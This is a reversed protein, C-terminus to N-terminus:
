QNNNIKYLFCSQSLLVVMFENGCYVGYIEDDSELSILYQKAIHSMLKGTTRNKLQTDAAVSKYVYIHKNTDAIAAYSFNPACSRFKTNTKSAQIYGFASFTHVHSLWSTEQSDSTNPQWLIGDVDQRLCFAPSKSSHHKVDFLFKTDNIFAKHTALHSDGDLRRFMLLKDENEPVQSQEDDMADCDELQQELKFLNQTEEWSIKKDEESDMPLDKEENKYEGYEHMDKLCCSWIGVVAKELILEIRNSAENLQWTSEDVKICASLQDSLIIKGCHIIEISDTTLMINLNSKNLTVNDLVCVSMNLETASQNWTYFKEVKKEKPLEAVSKQISKKVFPKVPNVSDFEFRIFNPGAIYISQGNTELAVYDPVSTLCNLRRVRRLSWLSSEANKEFSLWNILTDFSYSVESSKQQVNMFLLHLTNNILLADKLICAIGFKELNRTPFQFSITWKETSSSDQVHECIYITEYGDFIVATNVSIFKMTVNVRNSNSLSLDSLQLTTPIVARTSGEKYVIKVLQFKSDFYYINSDDFQNVVILNQLGILKLHQFLLMKQNSSEDETYNYTDLHHNNTLDLKYQSFGDLSLKYGEFNPDLLSRDPNLDFWKTNEKTEIENTEMMALSM